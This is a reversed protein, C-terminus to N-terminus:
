GHICKEGISATPRVDFRGKKSYDYGGIDSANFDHLVQMDESFRVGLETCIRITKNVNQVNSIKM